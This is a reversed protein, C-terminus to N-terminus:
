AIPATRYPRGQRYLETRSEFEAAADDPVLDIAKGMWRVADDFEGCEACAAALTDLFGAEQWETLECARTACEKAQRGNRVDPDPATARIWAIQNFTSANRPDRKLAEIHDQVARSYHGQRYLVGARLNHFLPTTPSLRVAEAFDAAAGPLDDLGQRCLGRLSYARANTPALRVVGDCDTRAAAYQKRDLRVTARALLSLASEPDLRLSETFDTEAADLDGLERRALGRVRLAAANEPDVRLAADCDEICAVYEELDLALNARAVLYHAANAPDGDIAAAFDARAAPTDGLAAHSEARRGLVAAWGADLALVKDCDAIAPAFAKQRFLVEAREAYLAPDDPKLRIARDLDNLADSRRGLELYAKARARYGAAVDPRLAIVRSFCEVAEPYDRTEFSHHGRDFLAEADPTPRTKSM